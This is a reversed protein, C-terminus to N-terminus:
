AAIARALWGIGDGNWGAGCAACEASWEGPPLMNEDAGWCHIRVAPAREEGAFKQGCSPCPLSIRRPPKVPALFAAIRDCWDQTVHELFQGWETEPVILAWGKLLDILRGHYEAGQMERHHALAERRIECELDLAGANIPLPAGSSKGGDSNPSVAEKLRDLLAPVKVPRGDSMTMHETTLQHVNDALTM